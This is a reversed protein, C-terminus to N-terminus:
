SSGHLPWFWDLLSPRPLGNRPQLQEELDNARVPRGNLWAGPRMDSQLPNHRQPVSESKASAACAGRDLIQELQTALATSRALLDRTPAPTSLDSAYEVELGAVRAACLMKRLALANADDGSVVIQVALKTPYRGRFRLAPRLIEHLRPDDEGSVRILLHRGLSMEGLLIGDTSSTRPTTPVLKFPNEFDSVLPKPLSPLSKHLREIKTRLDNLRSSGWFVRQAGSVHLLQLLPPPNRGAVSPHLNNFRHQAAHLHRDLCHRQTGALLAEVAVPDVGIHLNLERRSRPDLLSTAIRRLGRSNIIRLADEALGKDAVAVFWRAVQGYMASRRTESIVPVFEIQLEGPREGVIQRAELWLDLADVSSPDAYVYLITSAPRGLVPNRPGVCDAAAAPVDRLVTAHGRSRPPPPAARAAGCLFVLSIAASALGTPLKMATFRSVLRHPRTKM